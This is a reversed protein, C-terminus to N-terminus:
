PLRGLKNAIQLFFPVDHEWVLLRKAGIGKFWFDFTERWWAVATNLSRDVGSELELGTETCTIPVAIRQQMRQISQGFPAYLQRIRTRNRTSFTTPHYSNIGVSDLQNLWSPLPLLLRTYDDRSLANAPYPIRLAGFLAPALRSADVHKLLHSISRDHKLPQWTNLAVTTRMGLSKTQQILSGWENSDFHIGQALENALIIEDPAIERHLTRIFSRNHKFFKEQEKEDFWIFGAWWPFPYNPPLNLSNRTPNWRIQATISMGSDKAITVAEKQKETIEPVLPICRDVPTAFTWYLHLEKIGIASLSQLSVDTIGSLAHPGFGITVGEPRFRYAMHSGWAYRFYVRLATWGFRWLLWSAYM